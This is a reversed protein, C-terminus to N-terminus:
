QNEFDNEGRYKINHEQCWQIAIENVAKKYYDWWRNWLQNRQCFEEFCFEFDRWKGSISKDNLDILFSNELADEDIQFLPIYRDYPENHEPPRQTDIFTYMKRDFYCSVPSSVYQRHAFLEVLSICM